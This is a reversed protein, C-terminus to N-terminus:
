HTPLPTAVEKRPFLGGILAGAIAGVGAGGITVGVTSLQGDGDPDDLASAALFGLLGGVVGGIVAGKRWQTPHSPQSVAIPHGASVTAFLRSDLRSADFAIRNPVSSV